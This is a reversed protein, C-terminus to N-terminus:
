PVIVLKGLARREMLAILADKAEDLAYTHSVHVRLEGALYWGLLTKFSAQLVAPNHQAYAGWYVGVLASNKLLVRNVPLESIRGSAFGIVLYRGEWAILRAAADFLDGGVPDYIVDAGKDQTLARVAERLDAETYNITHQAGYERALALKDDSSAAAMVEAGLRAGIAVAALGVGGGAGLVLLREGARLHGRHALAVHSTGYAIPFAAGHEYSMGEPLPLVMHAPACVAEAMGGQNIFAFVRQGPQWGNVSAGVEVIDGAVEIGPTFPLPPKVQYLGQVLLVDPFNVGAARVRIKVEGAAPQPAAVEEVTLTGPPGFQKCVLARM